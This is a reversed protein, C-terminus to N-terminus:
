MDGFIAKLAMKAIPNALQACDLGVGITTWVGAGTTM